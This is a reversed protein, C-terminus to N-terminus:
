KNIIIKKSYNNNGIKLNVFYIGNSLEKTDVFETKIGHGTFGKDTQYVTRGSIDAINIKVDAPKDVLYTINVADSAPNPFMTIFGQKQAQPDDIGTNIQAFASQYIEGTVDNQIFIVMGLNNIDEVEGSAFTYNKSINVYLGPTFSAQNIGTVSPLFKRFVSYFKTEGNSGTNGTTSLEVIAIRIKMGNPPNTWDPFPLIAAKATITNGNLELKPTISIYAPAMFDNYYKENYFRPDIRNLGNVMMDPLSDVGYFTARTAGDATAYPDTGMQYSIVTYEGPHNLFVTRLTDMAGKCDACNSSNFFEHIAMKPVFVGMVEITKYMTDNWPNQDTNGNINSAWVKLQHPGLGSATWISDHFYWMNGWLPISAGTVHETKVPGNDLTYNIDYSTVTQLGFSKVIGRIEVPTSSTQYHNTQIYDIALDYNPRQGPIFEYYKNDVTSASTAALPHINPSGAVMLASSSSYQLGLTLLPDCSSKSSSRQDVIYIKNSTEELVVSWYTWCKKGLAENNYSNFFIWFQRNPATGFTKTLIKDNKTSGSYGLGWVCITNDPVYQSPIVNHTGTPTSPNLTFTVLGTTSVRFQTFNQGNFTFTFPLTQVSTWAPHTAPQIDTWGSPLGSGYPQEADNNLNGPNGNPTIVPSNYYYQAGATFTMLLIVAILYLNKM